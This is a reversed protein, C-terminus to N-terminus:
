DASACEPTITQYHCQPRRVPERPQAVRLTPHCYQKHSHREQPVGAAHGGAGIAGEVVIGHGPSPLLAANFSKPQNGADFILLHQGFRWSRRDNLGWFTVREVVCKHKPFIAFLKM